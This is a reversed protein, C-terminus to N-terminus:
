VTETPVSFMLNLFNEVYEKTNDYYNLPYGKRKRYVWSALVLFKGLAKCTAKYIQEESTIDLPKPNFATLASTLSALIGM